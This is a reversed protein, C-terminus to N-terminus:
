LGLKTESQAVLSYLLVPIQTELGISHRFRPPRITPWHKALGMKPDDAEPDEFLM